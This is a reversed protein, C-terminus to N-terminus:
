LDQQLERTLGLENSLEEQTQGDCRRLMLLFTIVVALVSLNFHGISFVNCKGTYVHSGGGIHPQQTM